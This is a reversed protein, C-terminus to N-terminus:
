TLQVRLRRGLPWAAILVALMLFRFFIVAWLFARSGNGDLFAFLFETVPPLSLFVPALLVLIAAIRNGCSIGLLCAFLFILFLPLGLIADLSLFTKGMKWHLLALVTLLGMLLVLAWLGAKMRGPIAAGFVLPWIVVLAALILGFPIVIWLISGGRVAIETLPALSFFVALLALVAATQHLRASLFALLLFFGLTALFLFGIITVGVVTNRGFVLFSSLGFFFNALCLLMFLAVFGALLNLALLGAKKARSM